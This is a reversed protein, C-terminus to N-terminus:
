QASTFNWPLWNEPNAKVAEQNRQIANFYDFVHVGASAATAIMSTIVDAVNAGTQTKFFLSNKRGRVVLKLTAEMQNNDLKAGEHTCFRTLGNYHREFYGIAKGLGSNKEVKGSQILQSGWERIKAMIPLSHQQHYELREKPSLSDKKTQKEHTWIHGYQELVYDVEQPFHQIVDVFQRRGHSNCLSRIMECPVHPNNNSLADSMLIPPPQDPSRKELLEDMLEGAHGINTQFLTIEQGSPLTAIVGSTYIGSRLTPKDSGHRKKMTPQQDLIRHTTDDLHYHIANGAAAKMIDFVAQLDSALYNCQDAITSASISVGLLDQLSQQRYFPSGAFYKNLAMLSRASYGYMQDGSGDANVSEPLDATFFVGCANCRLREFLHQERTYPSHGTIRLLRAPEYHYLKGLTCEPCREGAQLGAIPHHITVPPQQKVSKKKSPTSQNSKKKRSRPQGTGTNGQNNKGLVDSRKESSKEIGLQKRLKHLTIDQNQLQQHLNILTSIADLAQQGQEKNLALGYEMSESIKNTM